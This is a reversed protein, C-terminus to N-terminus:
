AFECEKRFSHNSDSHDRVSPQSRMSVKGAKWPAEGEGRETKRGELVQNGGASGFQAEGPSGHAAPLM